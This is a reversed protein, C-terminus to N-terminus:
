DGLYNPLCGFNAKCKECVANVSCAGRPGDTLLTGCDPCWYEYDPIENTGSWRWDGVPFHVIEKLRRKFTLGAFEFEEIEPKAPPERRKFSYLTVFLVVATVCVVLFIQAATQPLEEIM